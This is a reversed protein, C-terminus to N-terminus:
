RTACRSRLFDRVDQGDIRVAGSDPDYFRGILSAITTKGAGTSGVLATMHGQPVTFSIDNLVPQGSVYSFHVHDFEIEGEFKPATKADPLDQVQPETDLIEKIRESDESDSLM